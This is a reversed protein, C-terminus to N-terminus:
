SLESLWGGGNQELGEVAILVQRLCDQFHENVFVLPHLTHQCYIM